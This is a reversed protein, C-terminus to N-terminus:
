EKIIIQEGNVFKRVVSPSKIVGNDQVELRGVIGDYFKTKKLTEAVEYDNPIRGNKAYFDENATMILNVIDYAYAPINLVKSSTKQAMRAIFKEDGDPAFVFVQNEFLEPNKTLGMNQINIVPINVDDALMEKRIIELAPSFTNLIWYDAGFAKAKQIMLAFNRNDPGFSFEQYKINNKDLLENTKVRFEENGVTQMNFAVVKKCKQSVLYDVMKKAAIDVLQWDTFNLDGEAINSANSLSIHLVKAKDAIPSVVSGVPSFSSVVADVKDVSIFKNAIIAAKSPTFMDDEFIIKFKIPSDKHDEAALEIAYRSNEGFEALEGSMPLMVGIKVVPKDSKESDCAVLSLVMCLILFIKKM